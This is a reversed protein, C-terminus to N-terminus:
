EKIEAGGDRGRRPTGKLFLHHPLRLANQLDSSTYICIKEGEREERRRKKKPTKVVNCRCWVSRAKGAEIINVGDIKCEIM